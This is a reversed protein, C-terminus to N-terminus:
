LTLSNITIIPKIQTANVVKLQHTLGNNQHVNNGFNANANKTILISTLKVAKGNVNALAHQLMGISIQVVSDQLANM